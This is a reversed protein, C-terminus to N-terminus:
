AQGRALRKLFPEGHRVVGGGWDQGSVHGPQMHGALPIGAFRCDDQGEFQEAGRLQCLGGPWSAACGHRCRLFQGFPSYGFHGCSLAAPM